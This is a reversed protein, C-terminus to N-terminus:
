STLAMAGVHGSTSYRLKVLGEPKGVVVRKRLLSQLHTANEEGKMCAYHPESVCSNVYGLDDLWYTSSWFM